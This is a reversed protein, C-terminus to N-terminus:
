TCLVGHINHGRNAPDDPENEVKRCRDFGTIVDTSPIFIRIPGDPTDPMLQLNQLTSQLFQCIQHHM